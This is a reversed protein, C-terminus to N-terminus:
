RDTRRRGRRQDADLARHARVVYLPLEAADGGAAPAPCYRDDDLGVNGWRDRAEDDLVRPGRKTPQSCFGVAM